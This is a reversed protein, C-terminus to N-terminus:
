FFIKVIILTPNQLVTLLFINMAGYFQILSLLSCSFNVVKFGYNAVLGIFM